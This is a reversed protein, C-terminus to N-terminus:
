AIIEITEEKMIERIRPQKISSLVEEGCIGCHVLSMAM